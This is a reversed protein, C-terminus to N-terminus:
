GSTGIFRAYTGDKVMTKMAADFASLKGLHPSNKAICLHFPITDLVPKLETIEGELGLQRMRHRLVPATEVVADARGRAVLKLASAVDPAEVLALDRNVLNERVWGSGAYTAIRFGKLGEIGSVAQLDALRAGRLATFIRIPARMVPEASPITYALREPTPVTCFADAEGGRVMAQARAWPRGIHELRLGVRRQLAEDILDIFMGRMRGQEDEWTFPPFDHFYALRLVPDAAPDAFARGAGLAGAGLAGAALTGVLVGRRNPLPREAM